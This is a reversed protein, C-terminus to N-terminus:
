KKLPVDASKKSAAAPKAAAPRVPASIQVDIRVKVLDTGYWSPDPIAQVRGLSALRDGFGPLKDAPLRVFYAGEGEAPPGSPAGGSADELVGGEARALDALRTFDAEDSMMLSFRWSTPAREQPSAAQGQPMPEAAPEASQWASNLDRQVVAGDPPASPAPAYTAPEPEGPAAAAPAAAKTEAAPEPAAGQFTSQMATVGVVILAAAAVALGPLARRLGAFAATTNAAPPPEAALREQLRAAFGEPASVPAHDRLFRSAARLAELEERLAPDAALEAELAAAETDTLEGDLLASLQENAFSHSM